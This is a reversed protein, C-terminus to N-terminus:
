LSGGTREQTVVMFPPPHEDFEGENLPSRDFSDPLAASEQGIGRRNDACREVTVCFSPTVKLGCLAPTTVRGTLLRLVVTGQGIAPGTPHTRRPGPTRM